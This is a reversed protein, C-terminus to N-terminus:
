TINEESEESEEFYKESGRELFRITGTQPAMIAGFHSCENMIPHARIWGKLTEERVMPREDEGTKGEAQKREHRRQLANWKKQICGMRDESEEVVELWAAQEKVPTKSHQDDCLPHGNMHSTDHNTQVIFTSSTRIKANLLDKEIVTTRMGDSLILYCPATRQSSLHLTSDSLPPIGHEPSSPLITSRLISAISPRFGFLVLIQHLRLSRTSCDHNPRFNLSLSLDKRVGTLVGVFGAYTITRAIVEQPDESKSRVFELVIIVSRLGEMGWDLTRFHMMRDHEQGRGQGGRTIKKGGKVLVGGSTCGLLSDLLVNLAVLIYLPVGSARSIGNLEATEEPSYVCRLFLLALFEVFLRLPRWAIFTSLVEDFLPTLARMKPALETAMSKYRESPALSLDIRYTPIPENQPTVPAM